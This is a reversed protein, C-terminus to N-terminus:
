EMRNNTKILWNAARRKASEKDCSQSLRVVAFDNESCEAHLEAEKGLAKSIGKCLRKSGFMLSHLAEFREGLKPYATPKVAAMVRIHETTLVSAEFEVFLEPGGIDCCGFVKLKDLDKTLVKPFWGACKKLIIEPSSKTSIAVAVELISPKRTVHHFRLFEEKNQATMYKNRSSREADIKWDNTPLWLSCTPSPSFVGTLSTIDVSGGGFRMQVMESKVELQNFRTERLKRILNKIDTFTSRSTLAQASVRTRGKIALGETLLPIFQLIEIAEATQNQTLFQFYLNM